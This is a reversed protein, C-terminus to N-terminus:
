YFDKRKFLLLAVGVVLSPFFIWPKDEGYSAGEFEQTLFPDQPITKRIYSIISQTDEQSFYAGATQESAERLIGEQLFSIFDVGNLTKINQGSFAGNEYFFPIKDGSKSGIGISIVSINAENLSSIAQLIKNRSHSSTAGGGGDSLVVVYRVNKYSLNETKAVAVVGLANALNSGTVPVVEVYVGNDIVDLLESRTNKFNSLPFALASFGVVVFRAEPVDLVIETMIEKATELKTPDYIETSAEMSKSVDVLFIIDARPAVQPEKIVPQALIGILSGLILMWSFALLLYTGRIHVNQRLAMGISKNRRYSHYFLLILPIFVVFLFFAEPRLFYM